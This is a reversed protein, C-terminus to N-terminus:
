RACIQEKQCFDALTGGGDLSPCFQPLVRFMNKGYRAVGDKLTNLVCVNGAIGCIDVGDIENAAFLTDLKQAAAQFISYEEKNSNEGKALIHSDGATTFIAELINPWIAAGRSHAVCHRPWQGGSEKFSCHGWPHFDCTVIKLQWAGDSSAIHAALDRMSKEAGPVPLSGNIFDYQPDVILLARPM